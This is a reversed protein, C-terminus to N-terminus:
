LASAATGSEPDRFVRSGQAAEIADRRGGGTTGDRELAGGSRGHGGANADKTPRFRRRDKEVRPARRPRHLAPDSEHLAHLEGQSPRLARASERSLRGAEPEQPFPAQAPARGGEGADAPFPKATRAPGDSRRGSLRAVPGNRPVRL